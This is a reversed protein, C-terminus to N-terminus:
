KELSGILRSFCVSGVKTTQCLSCQLSKYDQFTFVVFKTIFFHVSCVKTTFFASVVFKELPHSLCIYRFLFRQFACRPYQKAEAARGQIFNRLSFIFYPGQLTQTCVGAIKGDFIHRSHSPHHLSVKSSRKVM